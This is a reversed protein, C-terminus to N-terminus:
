LYNFRGRRLGALAHRPPAVVTPQNREHTLEGLESDEPDARLTPQMGLRQPKM